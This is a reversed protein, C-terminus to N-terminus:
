PAALFIQAYQRAHFFWGVWAWALALLVLAMRAAAADSRRVLALVGCGAALAALQAPRWAANYRAVLRWYTEPSFMLFDSIGYTWWETM